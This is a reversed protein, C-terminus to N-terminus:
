LRIKRHSIRQHVYGDLLSEKYTVSLNIRGYFQDVVSRGWYMDEYRYKRLSKRNGQTARYELDHAASTLVSGLTVLGGAMDRLVERFTIDTHFYIAQKHGRLYLIIHNISPDDTEIIGLVTDEGFYRWMNVYVERSFMVQAKPTGIVHIPNLSDLHYLVVYEHWKILSSYSNRTVRRGLDNPVYEILNNIQGWVSSRFSSLMVPMYMTIGGSGSRAKLKKKATDCILSVPISNDIYYADMGTSAILSGFCSWPLTLNDKSQHPYITPRCYYAGANHPILIIDGFNSM